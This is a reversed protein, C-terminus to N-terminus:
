RCSPGIVVHPREDSDDSEEGRLCILIGESNCRRTVDLRLILGQRCEECGGM